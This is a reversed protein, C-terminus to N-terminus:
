RPGAAPLWDPGPINPRGNISCAGNAPSCTRFRTGAGSSGTTYAFPVLLCMAYRTRNREAKGRELDSWYIRETALTKVEVHWAGDPRNVVIDSEGNLADRAYREITTGLAIACAM